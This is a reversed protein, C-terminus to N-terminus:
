LKAKPVPNFDVYFDGGVEFQTLAAPNDILFEAHGTPTCKQFRQDEPINDDYRTDFKLTKASGEYTTISSLHM